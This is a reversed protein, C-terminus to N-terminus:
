LLSGLWQFVIPSHFLYVGPCLLGFCQSTDAGSDMHMGINLNKYTDTCFSTGIEDVSRTISHVVSGAAMLM